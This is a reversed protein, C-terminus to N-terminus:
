FRLCRVKTLGWGTVQLNSTAQLNETPEEDALNILKTKNNFNIEKSLELLAADYDLTHADYKPHIIVNKVPIVIGGKEKFTSGIRISRCVKSVKM